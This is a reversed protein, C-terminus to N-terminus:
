ADSAETTALESTDDVALRLSQLARHTHTKVAGPSVGLERAVDAESWDALFRLAVVDRQRRPLSSLLQQVQLRDAVATGHDVGDPSAAAPEPRRKRLVGIALNTAVRCVWPRAHSRVRRWRQYARAMTEQAVEEAEARSGLARYAVRYALGALDDFEEEYTM